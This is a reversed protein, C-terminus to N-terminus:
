LFAKEVTSNHILYVDLLRWNNVNSQELCSSRFADSIDQYSRDSCELKQIEDSVRFFLLVDRLSKCFVVLAIFYLAPASSSHHAAWLTSLQLSNTHKVFEQCRSFKKCAKKHALPHHNMQLLVTRCSSEHIVDGM